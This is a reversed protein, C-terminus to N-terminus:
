PKKVAPAAPAAPRAVNVPYQKNYAALIDNTIDAGAGTFLTGAQGADLILYYGNQTGYQQVVTALRKSMQNVIEQRDNNFDATVDENLRDLVKQRQQIEAQRRAQEATTMTNARQQLDAQLKAIETSRDQLEKERPSFRRELDAQAAKGEASEGMVRDTYVVGIKSGGGAPAPAQGVALWAILLLVALIWVVRM